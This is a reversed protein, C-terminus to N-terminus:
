TRITSRHSRPCRALLTGAAGVPEQYGAEMTNMGTGCKTIRTRTTAISLTPPCTSIYCVHYSRSASLAPSLAAWPSSVLLKTTGSARTSIACPRHCCAIYHRSSSYLLSHVDDLISIPTIVMVGFSLSLSCALFANSDQIRFHKQGPFRRVFADVCIITAGFSCASFTLEPYPTECLVPDSDCV